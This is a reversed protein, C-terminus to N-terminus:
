IQDLPDVPNMDPYYFYDDENPTEETSYEDASEDASEVRVSEDRINSVFDRARFKLPRVIYSLEIVGARHLLEAQYSYLLMAHKGGSYSIDWRLPMYCKQFAHQEKALFKYDDVDSEIHLLALHKMILRRFQRQLDYSHCCYQLFEERVIELLPKLDFLSLRTFTSLNEGLTRVQPCWGDQLLLIVSFYDRVFHVPYRYHYLWRRYRQRVLEPDSATLEAKEDLLHDITFHLLTGQYKKLLEKQEDSLWRPLYLADESYDLHQHIAGIYEANNDLYPPFTYVRDRDPDPVPVPRPEPAAAPAEEPAPPATEVISEPMSPPAIEPEEPTRRENLKLTEEHARKRLTEEAVARQKEGPKEIARSIRRSEKEAVQKMIELSHQVFEERVIAEEPAPPPMPIDEEEPAPEKPAPAAPAPTAPAPEPEKKSAEEEENESLHDSEIIDSEMIDSAEEEQKQEQQKQDEQKQEQQKQEQLKQEEQKKESRNSTINGTASAQIQRYPTTHGEIRKALLEKRYTERSIEQVDVTTRNRFRAIGAGASTRRHGTDETTGESTEKRSNFKHVFDRLNKEVEQEEKQHQEKEKQRQEEQERQRRQYRYLRDFKVQASNRQEPLVEREEDSYYYYESDSNHVSM